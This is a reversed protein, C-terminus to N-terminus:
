ENRLWRDPFDMDEWTRKPQWPQWPRGPEYIESYNVFDAKASGMEGVTRRYLFTMTRTAERVPTPDFNRGSFEAAGIFAQAQFEVMQPVDYFEIRRALLNPVGGKEQYIFWCALDGGTAIRGIVQRQRETAPSMIPLADARLLEIAERYTGGQIYHRNFRFTDLLFQELHKGNWNEFTKLDSWSDPTLYDPRCKMRIGNGDTWLISVEAVGGTLLDRVDSAAIRDMATLLDDWDAAAVPSRGGREAEWKAMELPFITGTYGADALRQAKAAVNEGAKTKPLEMDFLAAEIDPGTWLSDDPFDGREPQRVFREHFQEPELRACHYAKGLTRAKTTKEDKAAKAADPFAARLKADIEAFFPPRDAEATAAIAALSLGALQEAKAKNLWSRAWFNAPSVLLDQIGSASLRPLARYVDFPLDFYIGDPLDPLMPFAAATM